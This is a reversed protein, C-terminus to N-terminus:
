SAPNISRLFRALLADIEDRRPLAAIWEEPIAAIGHIAGALGGVVCGTTDTDGGLNVAALVARSFDPEHLVCWLSAELTHMVYGSSHIEDKPLTALTEDLIRAFHKQEGAHATFLATSRRIAHAYAEAPKEGALALSVVLCYFACALQSRMHGHTLSSLEMARRFRVEDDPFPYLGVALIRMLSGYGNEAESSTGPPEGDGLRSL